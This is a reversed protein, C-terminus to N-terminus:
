LRFGIVALDDRRRQEGQYDALAQRIKEKQEVMPLDIIELLLKRFRNKGFMRPRGDGGIQDILGDSTMYFTTGKLNNIEFEEYTQEPSIAKYGIGKKTGKQTQVEGGVISFLDFRAGCFIMQDKGPTLYCAGLELGDDSEGDESEQKLTVQVLNHTRQVLKGVQGVETDMLARELAGTAILTMFAGPVGHGTCDALIILVGGGWPYTWYIDGGVVDRPEWLIAYDAVWRELVREKPLISRQIRSAYRISNSIVDLADVLEREKQKIDTIDFYTLMVEDDPLKIGEYSFVKGDARTMEVHGRTGQRAAEIRENAYEEFDEDAVSYVGNYRNFEILERMTPKQSMVEDPVNWMNQFAKNIVRSRMQADMFVIGYDIAGMVTNLELLAKAHAKEAAKRESIEVRMRENNEETQKKSWFDKRSYLEIFYGTFGGMLLGGFFYFNHNLFIKFSYKDSLLFSVDFIAITALSAMFAFAFRVRSMLFFWLIVLPISLSYLVLADESTLLCIATIVVSGTLGVFCCWLEWYRKFRPSLSFVVVAGAVSVFTGRLILVRELYEPMVWFDVIYFGAFLAIALGIAIRILGLSSNIFNKSYEIELASELFRPPFGRLYKEDENFINSKEVSKSM